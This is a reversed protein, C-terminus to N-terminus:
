KHMFNAYLFFFVFRLNYVALLQLCYHSINKFKAYQLSIYIQCFKINKNMKLQTMSFQVKYSFDSAFPQPQNDHRDITYLTPFRPFLVYM